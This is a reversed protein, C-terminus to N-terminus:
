RIILEKTKKNRSTVIVYSNPDNGPKDFYELIKHAAKNICENHCNSFILCGHCPDNRDEVDIKELDKIGSKYYRQLLKEITTRISKSHKKTRM